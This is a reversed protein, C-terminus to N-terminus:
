TRVYVGKGCEVRIEYRNEGTCGLLALADVRVPRPDVWKRGRARTPM